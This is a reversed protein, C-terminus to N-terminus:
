FSPTSVDGKITVTTFLPPTFTTTIISQISKDNVAADAQKVADQFQTLPHLGFQPGIILIAVDLPDGNQFEALAAANIFAQDAGSIATIAHQDTLMRQWDATAKGFAAEAPQINQGPVTLVAFQFKLDKAADALDNNMATLPAALQPVAGGLLFSPM